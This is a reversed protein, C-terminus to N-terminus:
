IGYLSITFLKKLNNVIHVNMCVYVYMCVCIRVHMSIHKHKPIRSYPFAFTHVNHFNNRLFCKSSPPIVLCIDHLSGMFYYFKFQKYDNKCKLTNRIAANLHNMSTM